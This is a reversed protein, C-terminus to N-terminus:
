KKNKSSTVAGFVGRCISNNFTILGRRTSFCHKLNFECFAESINGPASNFNGTSWIISLFLDCFIFSLPKTTLCFCIYHSKYYNSDVLIFMQDSLSYIDMITWEIIFAITNHFNSVVIYVLKQFLSKIVWNDAASLFSLMTLLEKGTQM